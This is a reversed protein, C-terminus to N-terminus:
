IRLDNEHGLGPRCHHRFIKLYKSPVQPVPEIGGNTAQISALIQQQAEVAAQYSPPPMQKCAAEYDPLLSSYDPEMPPIRETPIDSPMIYHISTRIAQQRLTLYKYCRWVINITYAKLVMSALFIMLVIFSLCQPSLQLLYSRFPVQWTEAVLRHMSRM